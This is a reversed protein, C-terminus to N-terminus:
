SKGPTQSAPAPGITGGEVFETKIFTMRHDTKGRAVRDTWRVIRSVLPQPQWRIHAISPQCWAFGPNPDLCLLSIDRPAVLGRWALAQQAAFFLSAEDILLATPPTTAFLSDLCRHFDEVTDAWDPLNYTGTKIGMSELNDLFAQQQVGVFPKRHDERVLMVIRRHGLEVLRRTAEGVTTSKRFTAGAIPLNALHGAVAFVPATQDAFWELVERTGAFVVWADAPHDRVFREVRKVDFQLKTLTTEAFGITHGIREIRNLIDFHHAVRHDDDEYPLICVRFGTPAHHEQLQIRCRRGSGQPVLLGEDELQGLATRLTKHNVGIQEALFRYGPLEDKLEGRLIEERLHAAVQAATSQPVFPQM